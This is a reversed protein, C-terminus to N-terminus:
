KEAKVFFFVSQKAELTSSTRWHQIEDMKCLDRKWGYYWIAGKQEWKSWSWAWMFLGDELLLSRLCIANVRMDTPNSATENENSGIDKTGV